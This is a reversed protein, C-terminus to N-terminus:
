SADALTSNHRPLRVGYYSADAFKEHFIRDWRANDLCWRCHGCKCFERRRVASIKERTRAPDRRPLVSAAEKRGGTEFCAGANIRSVEVEATLQPAAARNLSLPDAALSKSIQRTARGRRPHSPGALAALLSNIEDESALFNKEFIKNIDASM